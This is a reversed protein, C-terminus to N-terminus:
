KITKTAAAMGDQDYVNEAHTSLLELRIPNTADPVLALGEEAAARAAGDLELISYAHAQVALLSAIRSPDPHAVHRAFDLEAGILPMAATADKAIMSQLRQISADSSVFCTAQGYASGFFGTLALLFGARFHKGRSRSSLPPM